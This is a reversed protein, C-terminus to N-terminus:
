LLKLFIGKFPDSKKHWKIMFTRASDKWYWVTPGMWGKRLTLAHKSVIGPLPINNTGRWPLLFYTSVLTSLYNCVPEAANVKLSVFFSLHANQFLFLLPPNLLCSFHASPTHNLRKSFGQRAWILRSSVNSLARQNWLWLTSSCLFTIPYPPPNDAKLVSNATQDSLSVTLCSISYFGIRFVIIKFLLTLM